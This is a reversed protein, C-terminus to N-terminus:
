YTLAISLHLQLPPSIKEFYHRTKKHTIVSQTTHFPAEQHAKHEDLFIIELIM